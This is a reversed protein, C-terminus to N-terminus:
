KVALCFSVEPLYLNQWMTPSTNKKKVLWKSLSGLYKEVYVASRKTKDRKEKVGDRSENQSVSDSLKKLEEWRGGSSAVHAKHLVKMILVTCSPVTSTPPISAEPTSSSHSNNWPCPPSLAEDNPQKLTYSARTLSGSHVFLSFEQMCMDMFLCKADHVDNMCSFVRHPKLSKTNYYFMCVTSREFGCVCVCVM